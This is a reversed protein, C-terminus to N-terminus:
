IKAPTEISIRLAPNGELSSYGLLKAEEELLPIYLYTLKSDIELIQRKSNSVITANM